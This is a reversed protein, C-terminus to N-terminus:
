LDHSYVAKLHSGFDIEANLLPNICTGIRIYKSKYRSIQNSLTWFKCCYIRHYVTPFLKVDNIVGSIIAISWNLFFSCFHMLIPIVMNLIKMQPPIDESIRDSIM